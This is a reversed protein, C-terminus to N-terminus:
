DPAVHVGKLGAGDIARQVVGARKAENVIDALKSQAAPSRGKPTAVAVRVVNFTGPVVMAGPLGDAAPYGVGADAGFVDSGGSRLLEIADASIHASLPIRVIEAAKLNHSLYLDSPSGQIVGVKVGARDVQSADAFARGPAAVYILDILWVDAGPDAKEPAALVRPGIAIDWEGKGFSQVYAGPNPYMVPEFSVGLKGAIFRGVPEAVGGLVRIAISGSRLKGKPAIESSPASQGWAADCIQISIVAIASLLTRRM